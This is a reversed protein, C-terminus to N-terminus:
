KDQPSHRSTALRCFLVGRCLKCADNGSRAEQDDFSMNASRCDPFPYPRRGLIGSRGRLHNGLSGSHYAM